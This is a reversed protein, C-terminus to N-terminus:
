VQTALEKRKQIQKRIIHTQFFLFGIAVFAAGILALIPWFLRVFWVALSTEEEPASTAGSVTGAELNARLERVGKIKNMLALAANLERSPEAEGTVSLVGNKSEIQIPRTDVGALALLDRAATEIQLDNAKEPVRRIVVTPEARVEEPQAEPEKSKSACSLTTFLSVFILLALLLTKMPEFSLAKV